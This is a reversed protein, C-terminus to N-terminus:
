GPTAKTKASRTGHLTRDVSFAARVLGRKARNSHSAARSGAAVHKVLPTQATGSRHSQIQWIKMKDPSNRGGGVEPGHIFVSKTEETSNKQARQYPYLKRNGEVAQNM